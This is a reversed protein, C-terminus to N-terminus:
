DKKFNLYRFAKQNQATQRGKCAETHEAIFPSSVIPNHYPNLSITFGTCTALM